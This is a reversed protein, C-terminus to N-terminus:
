RSSLSLTIYNPHLVLSVTLILLKESHTAFKLHSLQLPTSFPLAKVAILMELSTSRASDDIYKTSTM